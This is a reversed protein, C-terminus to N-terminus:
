QLILFVVVARPTKPNSQNMSVPMFVAADHRWTEGLSLPKRLIVNSEKRRIVLFPANMGSTSPSLNM